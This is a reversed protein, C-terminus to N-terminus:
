GARGLLLFNIAADVIELPPEVIDLAADVLDLRLGVAEPGVNILEAVFEVVDPFFDFAVVSGLALARREGRKAAVRGELIRRNGAPPGISSLGLV